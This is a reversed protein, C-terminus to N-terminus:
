KQKLVVLTIDDYVKHTGIFQTVEDIVAQRIEEASRDVHQSIVECLREIGYFKRGANEAEPMGDTHLVIGEGPRLAVTAEHVWQAIEEVMGIQFGLKMTDVREVKGGQRVVLLEEHQGIIEGAWGSLGV